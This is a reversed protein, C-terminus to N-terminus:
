PWLPWLLYLLGAGAVVFAVGPVIFMRSNQLTVRAMSRLGWPPWLFTITGKVVWAWGLLTLWLGFGSWVSHFAVIITGPFLSLFGNALAGARGQDHLWIFFEAWARHAVIHSLGLVLLNLATFACIAQEM